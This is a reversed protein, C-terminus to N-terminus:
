IKVPKSNELEQRRKKDFVIMKVYELHLDITVPYNFILSFNQLTGFSFFDFEGEVVAPANLIPFTVLELPPDSELPKVFGLPLSLCVPMSM